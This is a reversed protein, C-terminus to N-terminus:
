QPLISLHAGMSVIKTDNSRNKNRVVVAAFWGGWGGSPLGAWFVLSSTSSTSGGRLPSVKKELRVM